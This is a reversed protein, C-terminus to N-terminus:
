AMFLLTTKDKVYFVFKYCYRDRSCWNCMRKHKQIYVLFSLMLLFHYISTTLLLFRELLHYRKINDM